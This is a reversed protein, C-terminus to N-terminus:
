LRLFHLHSAQQSYGCSCTLIIMTLMALSGSLHLHPLTKLRRSELCTSLAFPSSLYGVYLFQHESIQCVLLLQNQLLHVLLLFPRLWFALCPRFNFWKSLNFLFVLHWFFTISTLTCCSQLALIPLLYEQGELVACWAMSIDQGRCLCVCAVGHLELAATSTGGLHVGHMRFDVHRGCCSRRWSILILIKDIYPSPLKM